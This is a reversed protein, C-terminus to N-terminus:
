SQLSSNHIFKNIWTKFLHYNIKINEYLLNNAILWNLAMIIHDKQISVFRSLQKLQPSM